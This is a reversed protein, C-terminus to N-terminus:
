PLVPPDGRRVTSIPNMLASSAFPHGRHGRLFAVVGNVHQLTPQYVNLCMRDICEVELTVHQALVEAATCAVTM